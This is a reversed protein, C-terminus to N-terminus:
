SARPQKRERWVQRFTKPPAAPLDRTERWAKSPGVGPGGLAIDRFISMAEYLQPRRMVQAWLRFALRELLKVWDQPRAKVVESRLELLIRPIDIKVPCVHGCAGCLSSAFPLWGVEALGEIQPTLIAGIPGSYVGPYSHGGIRRYVPCQNVCAGCRICFLTERKSRDALVRTRGNDLLVVYFEDPGDTEGTRRPGTLLSTYVTLEQGGASRGLLKLFTVLDRSRPILKEIGVVVVQVRPCSSSLRVNGENEVIVATGSEAVLFNAGTVGIGASLFSERLVKRAIRTQKAPDTERPVALREHFLDAVDHRTMHLAPATIHFPREGTLQVLYEGLDTETVELERDTLCQRLGIEEM